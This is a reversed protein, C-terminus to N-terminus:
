ICTHVGFFRACKEFTKQNKNARKQETKWTANGISISDSDDTSSTYQLVVTNGLTTVMPVSEGDSTMNISGSINDMMTPICDTPSFKILIIM